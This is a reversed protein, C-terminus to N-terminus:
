SASLLNNMERPPDISNNGGKAKCHVTFFCENQGEQGVSTVVRSKMICWLSTMQTKSLKNM